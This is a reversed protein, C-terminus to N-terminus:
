EHWVTLDISAQRVGKEDMQQPPTYDESDDENWIWNMRSQQDNDYRRGELSGVARAMKRLTASDVAFLDVQYRHRSLALGGSLAKLSSGSVRRYVVAPLRAGQPLALHYVRGDADDCATRLAGALLDEIM